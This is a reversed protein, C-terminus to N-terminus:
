NEVCLASCEMVMGKSELNMRAPLWDLLVRWDVMQTPPSAKISWFTNM